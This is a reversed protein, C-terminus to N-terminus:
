LLRRVHRSAHCCISVAVPLGAIHTPAQEIQIKLATTKGKLGLPGINSKNVITLIEDELNKYRVDSNSEDLPRLLARKALFPAYDFSGGIGVGVIMPPCANPGASIITDVIFDKVGEYGDSPKCMKIKSMNESGFGKASVKVVLDEGEVIDMYILAPTNDTTNKREFLPDDVISKRLYNNEYGIRVGENIAKKLNGNFFHIDQGITLYVSVMGTDQCIPIHENKAIDANKLLMDMAVRSIKSSENEFGDKLANYVDSPYSTTIDNCIDIITNKILNVDIERM